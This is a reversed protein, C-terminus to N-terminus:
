PFNVPVQVPEYGSHTEVLLYGSSAKPSNAVTFIFHLEYDEKAKGMVSIRKFKDLPNARPRFFVEATPWGAGNLM